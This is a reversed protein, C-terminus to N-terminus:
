PMVVDRQRVAPIDTPGVPRVQLPKLTVVAQTQGSATVFKVEVAEASYIQVVAGLDGRMLGHEPLDSELVVSDLGEFKM